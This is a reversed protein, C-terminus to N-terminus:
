EGRLILDFVELYYPSILDQAEDVILFDLKQNEDLNENTVLFEIPLDEAYYKALKSTIIPVQCDTKRAM